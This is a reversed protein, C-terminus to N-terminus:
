SKTGHRELVFDETITQGTIITVTRAESSTVISSATITIEGPPLNMLTYTGDDSSETVRGGPEALIKAGALEFMGGETDEFVTGTVTGGTPVDYFAFASLSQGAGVELTPSTSKQAPPNLTVWEVFNAGSPSTTPLAIISEERNTTDVFGEVNGSVTLTGDPDPTVTVFTDDLLVGHTQDYQDITAGSPGPQPPGVVGSPVYVVVVNLPSKGIFVQTTPPHEPDLSTLGVPPEGPKLSGGTVTMFSFVYTESDVTQTRPPPPALFTGGPLPDGGSFSELVKFGSITRPQRQHRGPVFALYQYTVSPM